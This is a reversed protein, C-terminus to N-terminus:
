SPTSPVHPLIGGEREPVRSLTGWHTKPFGAYNRVQAEHSWAGDVWRERQECATSNWKGAGALTRQEALGAEEGGPASRASQM